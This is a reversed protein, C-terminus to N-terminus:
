ATRLRCSSTSTRIPRRPIGDSHALCASARLRDARQHHPRRATRQIRGLRGARSRRHGRSHAQLVRRLIAGRRDAYADPEIPQSAPDQSAGRARLVKAASRRSRRESGALRPRFVARKSRRWWSRRRFELRDMMTEMIQFPLDWKHWIKLKQPLSYSKPM